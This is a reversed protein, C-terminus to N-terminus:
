QPAGGARVWVWGTRALPFCGKASSDPVRYDVLVMNPDDTGTVDTVIVAPDHLGLRGEPDVVVQTAHLHHATVPRRGHAPTPRTMTVTM